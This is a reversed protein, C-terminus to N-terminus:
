NGKRKIITKIISIFTLANPVIRELVYSLFILSLVYIIGGTGIKIILNEILSKSILHFNGLVIFMIGGSFIYPLVELFYKLVSIKKRIGFTEVICVSAEAM